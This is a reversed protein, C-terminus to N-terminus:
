LVKQVLVLVHRLVAIAEARIVDHLDANTNEIMTENVEQIIEPMPRGTHESGAHFLCFADGKTPFIMGGEEAIM